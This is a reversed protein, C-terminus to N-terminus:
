IRLALVADLLMILAAYMAPQTAVGRTGLFLTMFKEIDEFLPTRFFGLFLVIKEDANVRILLFIIEGRGHLTRGSWWSTVMNDKNIPTIRRVGLYMWHVITRRQLILFHNHQM